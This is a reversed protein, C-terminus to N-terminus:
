LENKNPRAIWSPTSTHQEFHNYVWKFLWRRSKDFHSLFHRFQISGTLDAFLFTWCFFDLSIERKEWWTAGRWAEGANTSPVRSPWPKWVSSLKTLAPCIYAIGLFVFSMDIPKGSCILSCGDAPMSCVIRRISIPENLGVGGASVLFLSSFRSKKSENQKLSKM